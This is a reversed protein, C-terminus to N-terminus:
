GPADEEETWAKLRYCLHFVPVTLIMNGLCYGLSSWLYLPLLQWNGGASVLLVWWYCFRLGLCGLGTLWIHFFYNERFVKGRLKGFLWGLFGRTLLHFGFIGTSLGDQLLGVALGGYGGAQSGYLVSIAYLALLLLDCSLWGNFFVSLCGQLVLLLFLSCPWALKRM